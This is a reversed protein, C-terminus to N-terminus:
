ADIRENVPRRQRLWEAPTTAAQIASLDLPQMTDVGGVETVLHHAGVHRSAASRTGWAGRTMTVLSWFKLPLLVTLHFLGFVVLLLVWPDRTAVLAPVARVFGMLVIMGLFLALHMPGYAVAAYVYWATSGVLLFPLLVTLAWDAALFLGHHPLASWTWLMERWHSKGWRTQQRLYKRLDGPVETWAHARSYAVRYGLRLVLNTLHRDDGFTCERGLFTQTVFQDKVQDILNRRYIGLPGSVCSVVGFFGQAAREVEFAMWYRVATVRTLWTDAPNLTDVHGTAAGIRRSSQMTAVMQATADPAWITDSDGTLVFVTAPDMMDFARYMAHRKGANAQWVYQLGYRDCVERNAARDTSGDDVVIVEFNPYHQAALSRMARDFTEIPENLVAVIISVMPTDRLTQRRRRVVTALASQTTVRTVSLAGYASLLWVFHLRQVYLAALAAVPLFVFITIRAWAWLPRTNRAKAAQHRPPPALALETTTAGSAPPTRQHPAAAVTYAHTM